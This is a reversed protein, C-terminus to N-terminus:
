QCKKMKSIKEIYPGLHVWVGGRYHGNMGWINGICQPPLYREFIGFSCVKEMSKSFVADFFSWFHSLVMVKEISKLPYARYAYM